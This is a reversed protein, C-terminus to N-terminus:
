REACVIRFGISYAYTDPPVKHRYACRLMSVDDNVWSGGRVIRLAGSAPGHPDCRTAPPMTTVATGIPCGSGYTAPWITCATRTRRIRAPRGRAASPSRRRTPWFTERPVSRDRQGVPVAARRRRRARGKGMRSRDASPRGPRDVRDAMSLVRGRGRIQSPRGSPQRPRRAPRRRALCVAGRSRPVARRQRERHAAVRASAPPPYGTARVFRAYEDQTVPFRGILFESVYVRHAPREDDGGDAGGM